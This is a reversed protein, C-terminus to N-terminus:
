TYVSTSTRCLKLKKKHKILLLKNQFSIWQILKGLYDIISKDNFVFCIVIIEVHYIFIKLYIYM